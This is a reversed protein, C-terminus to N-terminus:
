WFRKYQGLVRYLAEMYYYDGFINPEDTGKWNYCYVGANLLGMNDPEGRTLYGNTLSELIRHAASEIIAKDGDGDPLYRTLELMGCVAIASASTDRQSDDDTYYLDWNAILDSPMRDLFYFITRKAAELFREDKTYSYAIPLGSIAWAQGRAWAADDGGKGQSRSSDSVIEGSVVDAIGHQVVRGDEKIISSVSKEMHSYAVDYLFRDGTQEHAWFLLPVNNMCDVIFVGTFPDNLDDVNGGRQIIGPVERYMETLRYAAKIATEKAFEDATLKYDAVASLSFLFGIDHSQMSFDSDVRERFLITQIKGAKLFDKDGSAAYSTWIMGPWFGATWAQNPAPKYRGGPASISPFCYTFESLNKRTKEICYSFASFLAKKDTIYPRRWRSQLKETTIEQIVGRM